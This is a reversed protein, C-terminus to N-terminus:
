DKLDFDCENKGPKITATLGSSKALRAKKPIDPNEKAQPQPTTKRHMPDIMPPPPPTVQVQYDGIRMPQGMEYRGDPGLDASAEVGMTPAIFYITANTLPKGGHHTVKGSLRGVEIAPKHGCGAPVFTFLALVAVLGAPKWARTDLTHM